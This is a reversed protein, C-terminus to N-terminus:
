KFDEWLDYPFSELLGQQMKKLDPLPPTKKALAEELTESIEINTRGTSYYYDLYKFDLKKDLSRFFSAPVGYAEALIIGHLSSTVVKKSSVIADIVSKYDNTNMSIFEHNPYKKRLEKESYFQPIFCIKDQKEIQPQYILPMLIAPDGYVMPCKHRFKLLVERTLPGRVARIDLKRFPYYGLYKWRSKPECIAGSGWITSNQYGGFVNSGVSHFFKKGKIPTSLSLGKKQLMWESIVWGLYDGLNYRSNNYRTDKGYSKMEPHYDFLNVRNNQAKLQPYGGIMENRHVYLYIRPNLKYLLSDTKM